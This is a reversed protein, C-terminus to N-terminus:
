MHLLNSVNSIRIVFDDHKPCEYLVLPLSMSHKGQLLFIVIIRWSEGLNLNIIKHANNHFFFSYYVAFVSLCKKRCECNMAYIFVSLIKMEWCAIRKHQVCYVIHTIFLIAFTLCLFSSFFILLFLFFGLLSVGKQFGTHIRRGVAQLRIIM